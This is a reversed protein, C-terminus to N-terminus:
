RAPVGIGNSLTGANDSNELTSYVEGWVDCVSLARMFFATKTNLAIASRAAVGRAYACCGIDHSAREKRDSGVVV